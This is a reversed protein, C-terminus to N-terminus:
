SPFNGLVRRYDDLLTGDHLSPNYDKLKILYRNQYFGYTKLLWYDSVICAQQEMSYDALCCKDLCYSYDAAWSFTGRAKVWMGRQKQWVHMMEHLFLHQQGVRDRLPMSFDDEYIGEQFWVEGNPTMATLNDQLNLPLYSGRHIWVQSYHISFDFLSSALNIEGLTLLRLGGPKIPDFRVPKHYM